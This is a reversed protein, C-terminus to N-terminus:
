LNALDTVPQPGVEGVWSAVYGGIPHLSVNELRVHPIPDLPPYSDVPEM